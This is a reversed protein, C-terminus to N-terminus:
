RNTHLEFFDHVNANMFNSIFIM